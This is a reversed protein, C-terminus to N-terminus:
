DRVEHEEVVGDVDRAALHRAGLAVALDLALGRDLSRPQERHAPADIAMAPVGIRDRRPRRDFGQGGALLQWLRSGALLRAQRVLRAHGGARRAMASAMTLSCSKLM